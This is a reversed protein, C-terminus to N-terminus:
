LPQASVREGPLCLLFSFHRALQVLLIRAWGLHVDVRTLTLPDFRLVFFFFTLTGFQAGYGLPGAPGTTSFGIAERGGECREDQELEVLSV